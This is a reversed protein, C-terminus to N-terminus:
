KVIINKGNVLIQSISSSNRLSVDFDTSTTKKNKKMRYQINVGVPGEIENKGGEVTAIDNKLTISVSDLYKSFEYGEPIKNAIVDSVEYYKDTIYIRNEYFIIARATGNQNSDDTWKGNVADWQGTLIYSVNSEKKVTLATAEMLSKQIKTNVTQIDNQMDSKATEGTYWKSGNMVLSATLIVIVGSIAMTVLLEILSFGKNNQKIDIQEKM